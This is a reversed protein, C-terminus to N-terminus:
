CLIEDLVADVVDELITEEADLKEERMQEDELDVIYSRTPTESAEVRTLVGGMDHIIRHFSRAFYDTMHELSPTIADFPEMENMVQNQYTALYDTIGHEMTNFQVFSGRGIRMFLTFEWTHPHVAGKKDNIIIYHRANLYFKVRYERYLNSTM